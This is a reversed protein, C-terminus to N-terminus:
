GNKEDYNQKMQQRLFFIGVDLIKLTLYCKMGQSIMDRMQKESWTRPGIQAQIISKWRNLCLRQCMFKLNLNIVFAFLAAKSRTLSQSQSSIAGGPSDILDCKAVNQQMLIYIVTGRLRRAYPMASSVALIWEYINFSTVYGTQEASLNKRLDYTVTALIVHFDASKLIRM